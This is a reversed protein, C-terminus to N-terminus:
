PAPRAVDWFPSVRWLFDLVAKTRPPPTRPGSRVVSLATEAVRRDPMIEVVAGTRVDELGLWIPAWSIGVGARVMAWGADGDDFVLRGRPAYRRIGADDGPDRFRWPM